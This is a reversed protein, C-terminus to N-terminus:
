VTGVQLLTNAVGIVLVTTTLGVGVADILPVVDTQRFAGEGFMVKVFGCDKVSLIVYLILPAPVVVISTFAFVLRVSATGVPVAPVNM